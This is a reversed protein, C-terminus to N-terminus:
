CMETLINLYQFYSSHIVKDNIMNYIRNNIKRFQMTFNDSITIKIRRKLPIASTQM